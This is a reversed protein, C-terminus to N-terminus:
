VNEVVWDNAMRPPNTYLAKFFKSQDLDLVQPGVLIKLEEKLEKGLRNIEKLL